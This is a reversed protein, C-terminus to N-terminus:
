SHGSTAVSDTLAIESPNSKRLKRTILSYKMFNCYQLSTVRLVGIFLVKVKILKGGTWKSMMVQTHKTILLLGKQEACNEQLDTAYM